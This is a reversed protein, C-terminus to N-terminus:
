PPHNEAGCRSGRGAPFPPASVIRLNSPEPKGSPVAQSGSYRRAARRSPARAAAVSLSARAPAPCCSRWRGSAAAPASSIAAARRARGRGGRRMRTRPPQCDPVAAVGAGIVYMSELGLDRGVAAGRPWRMPCRWGDARGSAVIPIALVVGTLSEGAIMGAAFLMGRRALSETSAAPALRAAFHSLMGGILDAGLHELPLYIGSRWPSCRTRFTRRACRLM